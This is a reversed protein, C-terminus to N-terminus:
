SKCKGIKSILERQIRQRFALRHSRKQTLPGFLALAVWTAAHPLRGLTLAALVAAVATLLLAARPAWTTRPPRWGWAPPPVRAAIAGGAPPSAREGPRWGFTALVYSAVPLVCAASVFLHLYLRPFRTPSDPTM